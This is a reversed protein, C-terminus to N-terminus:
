LDVRYGSNCAHLPVNTCRKDAASPGDPAALFDQVIAESIGADALVTGSSACAEARVALM